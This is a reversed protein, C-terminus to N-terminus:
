LSMPRSLQNEPSNPSILRLNGVLVTRGKQGLTWGFGKVMFVVLEGLDLIHLLQAWADVILELMLIGSCQQNEM